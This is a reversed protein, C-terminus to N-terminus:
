PDFGKQPLYDMITQGSGGEQMTSIYELSIRTLKTGTTDSFILTM